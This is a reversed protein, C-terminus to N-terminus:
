GRLVLHTEQLELSWALQLLSHGVNTFFFSSNSELFGSFASWYKGVASGQVHVVSLALELAQREVFLDFAGGVLLSFPYLLLWWVFDLPLALAQSVDPFLPKSRSFGLCSQTIEARGFLIQSGPNSWADGPTKTFNLIRWTDKSTKTFTVIRWTERPTKPM